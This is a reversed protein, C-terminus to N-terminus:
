RSAARGRPLGPVHRPWNEVARLPVHRLRGRHVTVISWEAPGYRVRMIPATAPSISSTSTAAARTVIRRRQQYLSYQVSARQSWGILRRTPQAMLSPPLVRIPRDIVFIAARLYSNTSKQEDRGVFELRSMAISGAPANLEHLKHAVNVLSQFAGGRYSAYFNKARQQAVQNAYPVVSCLVISGALTGIAANTAVNLHRGECRKMLWGLLVAAGVFMEAILLPAIPFFYRAVPRPWIWILVMMYGLIALPLWRRRRLGDITAIILLGFGILGTHKLPEFRQSARSAGEWLLDTLWVGSHLVRDVRDSLTAVRPRDPMALNHAYLPDLQSREVRVAARLAFFTVFIGAASLIAAIWRRNIRPGLEGALLIAAIIPWTLVAAWRITVLLACAGSLLLLLLISVSLGAGGRGREAPERQASGSWAHLTAALLLIVGLVAGFAPEAHFTYVHRSVEYILASLVIALSAQWAPLSRRIVWWCAGLFVMLGALLVLKLVLFSSSLKMATGLLIPWGPPVVAVPQNNFRVGQGRAVSRAMALYADSDSVPVWYPNLLPVFLALVVLMTAVLWIADRNQRVGGAPEGM